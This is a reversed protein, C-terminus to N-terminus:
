SARRDTDIWASKFGPLGIHILHPQHVESRELSVWTDFYLPFFSM